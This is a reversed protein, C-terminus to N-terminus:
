RGESGGEGYGSSLRYEYVYARGSGLGRAERGLPLGCAWDGCDMPPEEPSGPAPAIDYRLARTM